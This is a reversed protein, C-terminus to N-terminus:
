LRICQGRANVCSVDEVEWVSPVHIQIGSSTHIHKKESNKNNEKRTPQPRAIPQDGM